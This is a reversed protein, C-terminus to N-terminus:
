PSGSCLYRLEPGEYPLWIRPKTRKTIRKPRRIKPDQIMEVDALDFGRFRAALAEGVESKVVYSGMGSQNWTFDAIETAGPLWEIQLPPVLAHYPGGRGCEPCPFKKRQEEM